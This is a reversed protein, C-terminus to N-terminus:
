STERIFLQSELLTQKGVTKSNLIDNMLNAIVESMSDLCTVFSTLQPYCAISFISNDQGILGVEKPVQIGHKLFHSLAGVAAYDNSFIYATREKRIDPLISDAFARGGDPGTESRLINKEASFPLNLRAFADQFSAIKRKSNSSTSTQVFCIKSYGHDMLHKVAAFMGPAYDTLVSYTNPLSSIYNAFIVPIKSFYHTIAQELAASDHISGLFVAGDVKKGSLTNLNKLRSNDSDGANVLLTTYGHLYLKDALLYASSNFFSNRKLLTSSIIIGITQTHNSVLSRAQFNPTFQYKKLLAEVKKRTAPAVRHPTNIVRSVTSISVEAERAIDYITM